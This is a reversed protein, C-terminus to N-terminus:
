MRSQIQIRAWNREPPQLSCRFRTGFSADNKLRPRCARENTHLFFPSNPIRVPDTKDKKTKYIGMSVPVIHAVELESHNPIVGDPFMEDLQDVLQDLEM